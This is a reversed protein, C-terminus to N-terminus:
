HNYNDCNDTQIKMEIAINGPVSTGGIPCTISVSVLFVVGSPDDGFIDKQGPTRFKARGDTRGTHKEINTRTKKLTRGNTKM